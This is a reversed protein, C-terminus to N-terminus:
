ISRQEVFQQLFESLTHIGRYLRSYRSLPDQDIGADPETLPELIVQRKMSM